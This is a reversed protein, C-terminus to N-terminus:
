DWPTKFFHHILEDVGGVVCVIASMIPLVVLLYEM